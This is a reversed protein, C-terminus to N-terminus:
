QYVRSGAPFTRGLTKKLVVHTDHIHRVISTAQAGGDRDEVMIARGVSGPSAWEVMLVSEERGADNKLVGVQQWQQAWLYVGSVGVLVIAFVIFKKM